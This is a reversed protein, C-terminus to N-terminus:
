WSQTPVAAPVPLSRLYTVLKWVIVPQLSGGFAPMGQPRGYFISSYVAGDSGGYKWRGDSLSPAWFGTAGLGHCGDCNMSSFLQGGETASKPDNEFPNTLDAGPPAIGNVAVHEQYRVAPPGASDDAATRETAPAAGCGIAAPLLLPALRSLSRVGM